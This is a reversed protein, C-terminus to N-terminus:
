VFKLILTDTEILDASIKIAIINYISKPHITM